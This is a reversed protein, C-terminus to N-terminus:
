DLVHLCVLLALVDCPWASTKFITHARCGQGQRHNCNMGFKEQCNEPCDLGARAKGDEVEIVLLYM